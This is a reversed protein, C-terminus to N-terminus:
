KRYTNPDNQEFGQSLGVASLTARSSFHMGFSTLATASTSTHVRCFRTREPFNETWRM